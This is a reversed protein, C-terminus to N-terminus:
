EFDPAELAKIESKAHTPIHDIKYKTELIYFTRGFIVSGIIAVIFFCVVDTFYLFLFNGVDIKGSMLIISTLNMYVNFGFTNAVNASIILCSTTVLLAVLSVVTFSLLYEKTLALRLIHRLDLIRSYYRYVVFRVLVIPLIFVLFLFILIVVFDFFSSVTELFSILNNSLLLQKSILLLVRAPSVIALGLLWGFVIMVFVTIYAYITSYFAKAFRVRPLRSKGKALYGATNFLYGPITFLNVLPILSLLFSLIVEGPKLAKIAPKFVDDFYERM